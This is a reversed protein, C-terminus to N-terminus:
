WAKKSSILFYFVESNAERVFKGKTYIALGQLNTSQIVYLYEKAHSRKSSTSRITKYIAVANSISEIVDLETLGDAGMEIRAKLSFNYRGALVARKIRVLVEDM